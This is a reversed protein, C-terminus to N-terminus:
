LYLIMRLGYLTEYVMRISAVSPLLYVLVTLCKTALYGVVTTMIVDLDSRGDDNYFTWIVVVTTTIVDLFGLRCKM